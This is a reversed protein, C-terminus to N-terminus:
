PGLLYLVLVVHWNGKREQSTKGRLALLHCCLCWGAAAGNEQGWLVQLPLIDPNWSLPVWRYGLGAKQHTMPVHGMSCGQLVGPPTPRPQTLLGPRLTVWISLCCKTLAKKTLSNLVWQELASCLRVTPQMWPVQGLSHASNQEVVDHDHNLYWKVQKLINSRTFLFHKSRQALVSLNRETRRSRHPNFIVFLSTAKCM